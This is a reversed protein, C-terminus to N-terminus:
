KKDEEVEEKDVELELEKVNDSKHKTNYSVNREHSENEKDKNEGM